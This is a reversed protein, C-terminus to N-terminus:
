KVIQPKLLYSFPFKGELWTKFVSGGDILYGHYKFQSDIKTVEALSKENYAKEIEALRNEIGNNFETVELNIRQRDVAYRLHEGLTISELYVFQVFDDVVEQPWSKIILDALNYFIKDFDFNLSINKYFIMVILRALKDLACKSLIEQKIILNTSNMELGFQKCYDIFGEDLYLRSLDKALGSMVKSSTRKNLWRQLSRLLFYGSCIIAIITIVVAGILFSHANDSNILQYTGDPNKTLFYYSYTFWVFAVFFVTITTEIMTSLNIKM